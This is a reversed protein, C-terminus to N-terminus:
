TQKFQELLSSLQKFLDARQVVCQQKNTIDKLQVIHSAIESEGILLIYPIQNNIAYEIQEKMKPSESYLTEVPFGAQWLEHCLRLRERTIVATSAGACAVLAFTDKSKITMNQSRLQHEKIAFIRELGISFGVSPIRRSENFMGILDDYRGGGAISGVTFGEKTSTEPTSVLVAEVIMDTYYSLGRALSLDFSYNSWDVNFADLHDFIRALDNIGPNDSFHPFSSKLEEILSKPAGKRTVVTKLYSIAEKSLGRDWELEQAVEDWTLKDLKDISACVKDFSPKVSSLEIARKYVLDLLGRHNIKIEYRGINLKSLIEDLMYLCEADPLRSDGYDGAIDFDCQYFARYRGRSIVPNDRRYVEGIQYRKIKTISNMAVYRAFPVTLDYRLSLSTGSGQDAMDYILKEDEGYRGTLLSKLEMIPTSITVAGHSKFVSTITELVKHRVAMESPGFDRMGKAVRLNPKVDDSLQKEAVQRSDFDFNMLKLTLIEALSCSYFKTLHGLVTQIPCICVDSSAGIISYKQGDFQMVIEEIDLMSPLVTSVTKWGRLAQSKAKGSYCACGENVSIIHSSLFTWIEKM